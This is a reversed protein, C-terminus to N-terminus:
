EGEGKSATRNVGVSREHARCQGSVGRSRTSDTFTYRVGAKEAEVDFCSACLVRWRNLVVTRWASDPDVRYAIVKRRQCKQCTEM